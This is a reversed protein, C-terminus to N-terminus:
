GIPEGAAGAAGATDKPGAADAAGSPGATGSGNAAGPGASGAAALDDLVRLWHRGGRRTGLDAVGALGFIGTWNPLKRRIVWRVADAHSALVNFMLIAQRGPWISLFSVSRSRWEWNTRTLLPPEALGAMERRIRRLLVLVALVDRWRRLRIVTCSCVLDTRDARLADLPDPRRASRDAASSTLPL